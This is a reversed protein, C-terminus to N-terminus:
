TQILKRTSTICWGTAPKSKRFCFITDFFIILTVAAANLAYGASGLRFYGEKPVYKRGTFLSPAICMAYSASTLIIFSGALDTFATRSGLPIAGLGTSIIACLLTAEVPCSLRENCKSFIKPFPTARDRALSWWIRSCTLVTGVLCILLSLMVIFLLGFTGAKNSTAQAYIAALPFSGNSGLVADLDTISYFIAIGFVFAALCSNITSL